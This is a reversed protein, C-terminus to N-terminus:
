DDARGEGSAGRAPPALLMLGRLGRAAEVRLETLLLMPPPPVPSPTKVVVGNVSANGDTCPEGLCTELADVIVPLPLLGDPPTPASDVVISFTTRLYDM